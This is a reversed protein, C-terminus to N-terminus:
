AARKWPWAFTDISLLMPIPITPDKELARHWDRLELARRVALRCVLDTNRKVDSPSSMIIAHELMQDFIHAEHPLLHERVLKGTEEFFYVGFSPNAANSRTSGVKPPAVNATNYRVSSVRSVLM